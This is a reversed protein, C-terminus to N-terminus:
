HPGRLDRPPVGPRAELPSSDEHAEILGGCIAPPFRRPESGRSAAVRAEILGGCIAPPFSTWGPCCASCPQAEILGGCIAPPFGVEKAIAHLDKNHKM